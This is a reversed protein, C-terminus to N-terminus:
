NICIHFVKNFPLKQWPSDHLPSLLYFIFVEKCRWIAFSGLVVEFLWPEWCIIKFHSSLDNYKRYICDFSWGKVGVRITVYVRRPLPEVPFTYMPWEKVGWGWWTAILLIGRSSILLSTVVYKNSHSSSARFAIDRHLLELM